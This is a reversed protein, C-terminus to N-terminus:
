ENKGGAHNEIDRTVVRSLDTFVGRGVTVSEDQWKEMFYRNPKGSLHRWSAATSDFNVQLAVQEGTIAFIALVLTHRMEPYLLDSGHFTVMSTYGAKGRTNQERFQVLGFIDTRVKSWDGSHRKKADLAILKELTRQMGRAFRIEELSPKTTVLLGDYNRTFIQALRMDPM